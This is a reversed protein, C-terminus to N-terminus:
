PSIAVVYALFVGDVVYGSARINDGEAMNELTIGKPSFQTDADTTLELAPKDDGIYEDIPGFGTLVELYICGTDPEASVVTGVLAFDKREEQIQNKDGGALTQMQLALLAVLVVALVWFGIYRVKEM